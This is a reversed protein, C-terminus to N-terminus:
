KWGRFLDDMADKVAAAALARVMAYIEKELISQQKKKEQDRKKKKEEQTM